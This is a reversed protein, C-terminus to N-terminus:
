KYKREKLYLSKTISIYQKLQEESMEGVDKVGEPFQFRIVEFHKKLLETGKIGSKDNDLCSVVKSINLAKLKAIQIDSAHWGLLAVVNKLHARTKLSLMDMYGECIYVVSNQNYTGCLTDRKSFGTNYLYKRKKEIHKNTTRGVYGRFEKNDLIPFLVPYAIDYSAKCHLANLNRATFGRATMYTYVEKEEKTQPNNWDTTRLGYYYDYAENLSQQNNKVRKKRIGINLKQVERSALIKELAVVCQLDTLNTYLYRIFSYADGSKGCGFCYFSGDSLSIHMSPNKDEHFPCVINFETSNTDEYLGYYALVRALDKGDYKRVM